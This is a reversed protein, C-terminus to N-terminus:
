EEKEVRIRVNSCRITKRDGKEDQVDSFVVVKGDELRYTEIRLIGLFERCNQILHLLM